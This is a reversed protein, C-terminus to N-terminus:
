IKPFLEYTQFCRNKSSAYSSCMYADTSDVQWQNELMINNRLSTRVNVSYWKTRLACKIRFCLSLSFFFLFHLANWTMHIKTFSFFTRWPCRSHMLASGCSSTVCNAIPKLIVQNKIFCFGMTRNSIRLFVVLM